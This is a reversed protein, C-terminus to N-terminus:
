KARHVYRKPGYLKYTCPVELGYGGGRIKDQMDGIAEAFGQFRQAFLIICLIHGVVTNSTDVVAVANTRSM